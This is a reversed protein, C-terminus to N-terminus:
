VKLVRLQPCSSVIDTLLSDSVESFRGIKLSIGEIRNGCKNAINLLNSEITALQGQNFLLYNWIFYMTNFNVM